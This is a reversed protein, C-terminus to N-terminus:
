RSINNVLWSDNKDIAEVKIERQETRTEDRWFILVSVLTKEPTIEKCEGVRFAKPLDESGTTFPDINEPSRGVATAFEPSLFKARQKLGQASFRM